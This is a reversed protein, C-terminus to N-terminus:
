RVRDGSPPAIYQCAEVVQRGAIKQSRFAQIDAATNVFPIRTETGQKNVAVQKRVTVEAYTLYPQGWHNTYIEVEYLGPKLEVDGAEIRQGNLRVEVGAGPIDVTYTGSEGIVLKATGIYDVEGYPLTGQVVEQVEDTWLNRHPPRLNIFPYRDGRIAKGYTGLVSEFLLEDPVGAAPEIRRETALTLSWDGGRGRNDAYSGTINGATVVHGVYVVVHGDPDDQRLMLVAPAGAIVQGTFLVGNEPGDSQGDRRRAIVQGNASEIVLRQSTATQLTGDLKDDYAITWIGSMSIAEAPRELLWGAPQLELVGDPQESNALRILVAAAIAAFLAAKRM